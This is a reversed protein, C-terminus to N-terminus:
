KLLHEQLAFNFKFTFKLRNPPSVFWWGFSCPYGGALSLEVEMINFYAPKELVIKKKFLM